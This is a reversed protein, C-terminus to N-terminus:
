HTADDRAINLNINKKGNIEKVGVCVSFSCKWQSIEDNELIM